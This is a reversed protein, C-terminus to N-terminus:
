LFYSFILVCIVNRSMEQLYPCEYKRLHLVEFCLCNKSIPVTHYDLTDCM